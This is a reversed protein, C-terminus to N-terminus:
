SIFGIRRQITQKPEHFDEPTLNSRRALGARGFGKQLMRKAERPSRCALISLVDETPEPDFLPGWAAEKLVEHFVSLMTGRAHEPSPEPLSFLEFRSLIATDARSQDNASAFWNIHSADIRFDVFEDRFNSAQEPELLEYLPGDAPYQSNRRVKDIEDLLVFPNLHPGNALLDYIKGPRASSWSADNGCLIFGASMSSMQFHRFSLSLADALKCIFRTKGWGPAGVLLYNPLKLPQPKGTIEWTQWQLNMNAEIDDLVPTFIPFQARLAELMTPAPCAVLERDYGSSFDVYRNIRKAVDADMAKVSNMYERVDSERALPRLILPQSTPPVNVAKSFQADCDEEDLFISVDGQVATPRANKLSKNRVRSPRSDLPSLTKRLADKRIINAAEDHGGANALDYPTEGRSNMREPDMGAGLLWTCAPGNGHGAAVHLANERQSFLYNSWDWNRCAAVLAGIQRQKLAVGLWEPRTIDTTAFVADVNGPDDSKMAMSMLALSPLRSQYQLHFYTTGLETLTTKLDVAKELAAQSMVKLMREGLQKASFAAVPNPFRLSGSKKQSKECMKRADIFSLTKGDPYEPWARDEQFMPALYSLFDERSRKAAAEALDPLFKGVGRGYLQLLRALIPMPADIDIATMLLSQAFKRTLKATPLRAIVADLTDPSCQKMADNLLLDFGSGHAVKLLREITDADLDNGALSVFARSNGIVLANHLKNFKDSM